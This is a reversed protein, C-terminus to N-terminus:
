QYLADLGFDKCNTVFERLLEMFDDDNQLKSRGRHLLVYFGSSTTGFQKAAEAGSIGRFYFTFVAELQQRARTLKQYLEDFRKLIRVRLELCENHNATLNHPERWMEAHLQTEQADTEPLPDFRKARRRARQYATEAHLLRYECFRIFTGPAHCQAFEEWIRVLADQVIAAYEAVESYRNGLRRYLYDALEKFAKEQQARDMCADHLATSYINIALNKVQHPAPSAEQRADEFVRRAIENQPLLTWRYSTALEQVIERCMEFLQETLM